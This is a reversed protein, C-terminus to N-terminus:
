DGVHITVEASMGPRPAISAPLDTWAIKVPVRQVVKVFNGTANDPPLLSFRSGTAAQVAAVQGHFTHDPYADLEIDVKQGPQIRAVETEKLNAVVYTEAPVVIVVPQGMAVTQGTHV